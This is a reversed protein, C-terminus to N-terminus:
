RSLAVGAAQALRRIDQHPTARGCWVFRIRVEEAHRLVARRCLAYDHCRTDCFLMFEKDAGPRFAMRDLGFHLGPCIAAGQSDAPFGKDFSTLFAKAKGLDHTLPLLEPFKWSVGKRAQRFIVIGVRVDVTEEGLDKVRQRMVRLVRGVVGSMSGTADFAFVLDADREAAEVPVVNVAV